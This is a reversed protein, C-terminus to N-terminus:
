AAQNVPLRLTFTSGRNLESDVTIEGGHQRAVERAFALGLGSGEVGRIREDASRFFKDFVLSAEAPAIGIGTDIVDLTFQREDADARVTVSGGDPTYKIANGVLNQFMMMVQDRDGKLVPM